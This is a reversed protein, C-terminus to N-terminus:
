HVNVTGTNGMPAAEVYIDVSLAGSNDFTTPDNMRMFLNGDNAATGFYQDRVSFPAGSGIRGILATAAPEEPLIRGVDLGVAGSPGSVWGLGGSWTGQADLFFRDGSKLTVGSDQWDGAAYVSVAFHQASNLPVEAYSRNAPLPVACGALLLALLPLMTQRVTKKKM